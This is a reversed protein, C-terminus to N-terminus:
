RLYSHDTKFRSENKAKINIVLDEVPGKFEATGTAFGTGYFIENQAKTTNLVMINNAETVAVNMVM